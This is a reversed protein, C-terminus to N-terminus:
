LFRFLGDLISLESVSAVNPVCSVPRLCVFCFLIFCLVICFSFHDAARVGDYFGPHVCINAFTLLLMKNNQMM